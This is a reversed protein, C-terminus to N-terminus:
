RGDSAREDHKIDILSISHMPFFTVNTAPSEYTLYVGHQAIRATACSRQLGNATIVVIKNVSDVGVQYYNDNSGQSM